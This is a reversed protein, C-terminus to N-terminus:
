ARHLAQGVWFVFRPAEIDNDVEASKVLTVVGYSGKGLHKLRQYKPRKKKVSTTTAQKEM